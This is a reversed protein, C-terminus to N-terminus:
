RARARDGPRDEAGVLGLRGAGLARDVLLMAASRSRSCCRRCTRAPSPACASCRRTSRAPQSACRMPSSGVSRACRSWSRSWRRRAAGAGTARGRGPRPRARRGGVTVAAGLADPASRRPGPRPCGGGASPSRRSASRSTSWSCGAGPHRSSCAASSRGSRAAALRRGRDVRARRVQRREPAHRRPDPGAVDADAAGRGRGPRGPFRRPVWSTPRRAPAGVRGHLARRRAPLRAAATATPWGGFCCWCRPTSSRTATSCGRCTRRPLRRSDQAMDRCRSTSSSCTSARWFAARASSRSSSPARPADARRDRASKAQMTLGLRQSYVALGPIHAHVVGHLM